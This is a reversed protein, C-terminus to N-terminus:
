SAPFPENNASWDLDQAVNWEGTQGFEMGMFLTKKGPHTFMYTFLSRLNAFKQWEDGANKASCTARATSWRM